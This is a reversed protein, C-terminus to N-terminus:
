SVIHDVDRSLRVKKLTNRVSPRSQIRSFIYFGLLAGLVSFIVDDIDTFRAAPLLWQLFEAGVASALAALFFKMGPKEVYNLKCLVGGYIGLPLFLLISSVSDLIYQFFHALEFVRTGGDTKLFSIFPTFNVGAGKGSPLYKLAAFCICYCIFSQIYASRYVRAGRHRNIFFYLVIFIGYLIFISAGVAINM